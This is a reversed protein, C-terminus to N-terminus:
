SFSASKLHGQEVLDLTWFDIFDSHCSEEVSLGRYGLISFKESFRWSIKRHVIRICFILFCRPSTKSFYQDSVLYIVILTIM